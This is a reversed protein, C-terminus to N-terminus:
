LLLERYKVREMSFKKAGKRKPKASFLMSGSEDYGYFYVSKGKFLSPYAAKTRYKLHKLYVRTKNNLLLGKGNPGHSRLMKM